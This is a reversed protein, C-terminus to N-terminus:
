WRHSNWPPKHIQILASEAIALHHAPIPWWHITVDKLAIAERLKAHCMEWEIQSADIIRRRLRWRGRLSTARGIYLLGQSMSRLFYIASTNPPLLLDVEPGEILASPLDSITLKNLRDFLLGVQEILDEATPQM